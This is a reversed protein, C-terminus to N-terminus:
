STARMSHDVHFVCIQKHKMKCWERMLFLLAVSDTGGSVAIAFKTGNPADTLKSILRQFIPNKKFSM